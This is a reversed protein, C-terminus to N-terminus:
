EESTDLHAKAQTRISIIQGVVQKALDTSFVKRPALKDLCDSAVIFNYYTSHRNQHLDEQAVMM